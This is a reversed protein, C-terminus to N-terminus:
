DSLQLRDTDEVILLKPCFVSLGITQKLQKEGERTRQGRESERERVNQKANGM